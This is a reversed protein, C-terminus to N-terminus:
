WSVSSCLFMGLATGSAGKANHLALHLMRLCTKYSSLSQDGMVGWLALSFWHGPLVREGWVCLLELYHLRWPSSNEAINVSNQQNNECRLEVIFAPFEVSVWPPEKTFSVLDSILPTWASDAIGRNEFISFSSLSWCKWELSSTWFLTLFSNHAWSM